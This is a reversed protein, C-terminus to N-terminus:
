RRYFLRKKLKIAPRHRPWRMDSEKSLVTLNPPQFSTEMDEWPKGEEDTFDDIIGM